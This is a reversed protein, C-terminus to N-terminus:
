ANMHVLEIQRMGYPNTDMSSTRYKIWKLVTTQKNEDIVEWEICALYINNSHKAGQFQVGKKTPTAM